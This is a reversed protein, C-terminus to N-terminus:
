RARGCFDRGSILPMTFLLILSLTGSLSGRGAIARAALTGLTMSVERRALSALKNNMLTGILKVTTTNPGRGKGVVRKGGGRKKAGRRMLKTRPAVRADHRQLHVCKM